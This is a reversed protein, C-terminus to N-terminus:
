VVITDNISYGVITLVVAVTTLNIERGTAIAAGVVVLADHFLAIVGGPAFRLDFRIAVYVMIFFIAYLVSLIGADRLQAGARPGVWEIRAATAPVRDEGLERRLGELVHDGVGIRQAEFRSWSPTAAAS